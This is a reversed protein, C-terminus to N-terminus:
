LRIYIVPIQRKTLDQTSLSPMLDKRQLIQYSGSTAEISRKKRNQDAHHFFSSLCFFHAACCFINKWLIFIFYELTWYKKLNKMWYLSIQWFVLRATMRLEAETFDSMIYYIPSIFRISIRREGLAFESHCNSLATDNQVFHLIKKKISAKFNINNWIRRRGVSTPLRLIVIRDVSDNQIRCFRIFAIPM